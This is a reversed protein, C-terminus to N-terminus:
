FSEAGDGNVIAKDYTIELNDFAGVSQENRHGTSLHRVIAMLATMLILNARSVAIVAPGFLAEFVVRVSFRSCPKIGIDSVRDVTLAPLM